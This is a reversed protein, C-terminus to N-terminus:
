MYIYIPVTYLLRLHCTQCFSSDVQLQLGNTYVGTQMNHQREQDTDLANTYQETTLYIM